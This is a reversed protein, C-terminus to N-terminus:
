VRGNSKSRQNAPRLFSRRSEVVADTQPPSSKKARNEDIWRDIVSRRFRIESNVPEYPIRGKKAWDRLTQPKIKLYGAMEEVTMLPEDSQAPAIPKSTEVAGGQDDRSALWTILSKALDREAQIREREANCRRDIADFIAQAIREGMKDIETLLFGRRQSFGALNLLAAAEQKM